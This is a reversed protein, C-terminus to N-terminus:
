YPKLKIAASAHSSDHPSDVQYTEIGLLTKTQNRSPNVSSTQQWAARIQTEIGLLTKTQNRCPAFIAFM